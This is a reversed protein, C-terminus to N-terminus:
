HLKIWKMSKPLQRKIPHPTKLHGPPRGIPRILPSSDMMSTDTPMPSTPSTPQPPSSQPPSIKVENTISEEKKQEIVKMREYKDVPVLIMKQMASM